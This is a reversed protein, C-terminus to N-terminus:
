IPEVVDPQFAFERPWDMTGAKIEHRHLFQRDSKALTSRVSRGFGDRLHLFRAAKQPAAWYPWYALQSSLTSDFLDLVADSYRPKTVLAKIFVRTPQSRAIARGGRKSNWLL